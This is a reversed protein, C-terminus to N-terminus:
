PINSNLFSLCAFSYHFIPSDSSTNGVTGGEADRRFQGYEEGVRM